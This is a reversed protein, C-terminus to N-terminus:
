VKEEQNRKKMFRMEAQQAKEGGEKEGSPLEKKMARNVESLTRHHMSNGRSVRGGKFNFALLEEWSIRKFHDKVLM